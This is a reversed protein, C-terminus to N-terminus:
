VAVSHQRTAQYHCKATVNRRNVSVSLIKESKKYEGVVICPTKYLTTVILKLKTDGM